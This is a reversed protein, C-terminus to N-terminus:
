ITALSIYMLSRSCIKPLLLPFDILLYDGKKFTLEDYEAGEYDYLARVPVGPEGSDVLADNPYDEDWEEEDGAFPNDASRTGNSVTSSRQIYNSKGNDHVVAVAGVPSARSGNKGSSAAGSDSSNKQNM